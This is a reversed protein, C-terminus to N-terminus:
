LVSGKPRLGTLVFALLWPASRTGARPGPFLEQVERHRGCLKGERAPRLSPGWAVDECVEAPVQAVSRPTPSVLSSSPPLPPGAPAWEPPCPGGEEAAAGAAAAVTSGADCGSPRVCARGAVAAGRVGGGHSGAGPRSASPHRACAM